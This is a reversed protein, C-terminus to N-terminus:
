DALLLQSNNVVGLMGFYMVEYIVAAGKQTGDGGIIYVQMMFTKDFGIVPNIHWHQLLNM